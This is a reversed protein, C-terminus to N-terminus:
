SKLFDSISIKTRICHNTTGEPKRSLQKRCTNEFVKFTNLAYCPSQKKYESESCKDEGLVFRPFHWCRGLMFFTLYNKEVKCWKILFSYAAPSGLNRCLTSSQYALGFSAYQACMNCNWSQYSNTSFWLKTCLNLSSFSDPDKHLVGQPTCRPILWIDGLHQIHYIIGISKLKSACCFRRHFDTVM